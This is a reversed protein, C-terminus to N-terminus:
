HSDPQNQQFSEKANAATEQIYKSPGMAWGLVGNPLKVKTVKARLYIDPPGILRPKMPFMEQTWPYAFSIM